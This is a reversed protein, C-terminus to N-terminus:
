SISSIMSWAFPHKNSITFSLTVMAQPIGSSPTTRAQVISPLVAKSQRFM